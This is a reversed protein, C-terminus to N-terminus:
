PVRVFLTEEEGSPRVGTVVVVSGSLAPDTTKIEYSGDDKQAVSLAPNPSKISQYRRPSADPTSTAAGPTSTTGPTAIPPPPAPTGPKPESARREAVTRTLMALDRRADEDVCASVAGGVSAPASPSPPPAATSSARWAVTLALASVGLSAWPIWSPASTAM